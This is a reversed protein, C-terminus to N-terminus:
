AVAELMPLDTRLTSLVRDEVKLGRLYYLSKVFRRETLLMADEYSERAIANVPHVRFAWSEPWYFAILFPLQALDALENIARYTPHKLDPQRARRDKYEVLAVPAGLNYEVMLFDLDVAPCNFGWARHRRSLSEDRWGTREHASM